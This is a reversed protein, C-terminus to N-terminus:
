VRNMGARKSGSLTRITQGKEDSIVIRVDGEPVSKLLYNIDAGYPPNQGDTADYVAAMPPTIGRFRYASRPAFLHINSNAVGPTMQELPAVDDLIWFGRGYTAFVLDKFSEQVTIGYVPVHPLNNQLPQWHEGDDFLVYLGGETGLYRM